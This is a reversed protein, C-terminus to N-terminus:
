PECSVDQAKGLQKLISALIEEGKNGQIKNGGVLASTFARAEAAVSLSALAFLASAAFSMSVIRVTRNM